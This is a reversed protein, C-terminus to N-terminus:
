ELISEGLVRAIVREAAHGDDRPNFRARWAAYREAYDAAAADARRVLTVLEDATRVVPGPAVAIFDFYFGRLVERYRELDPTFFFIPKGTVSFDFMVSSYDTILADAVLFLESVDPYSTVDLVGGAHLDSGPQLSRSHGRILTVYGPGLKETFASVDLHDVRGPHDDRWTPAYLLVTADDPIGLKARVVAADGTLLVDDRPYGEEWIPGRFLYARRFIRTAYANQSLLISWRSRERLTALAPRLRLGSRNLALKKLMTGHWTQLVRQHRRGRYRNRLWDNIVILRASGRIRWWEASGEILPIAGAPVAVSADRVGWYRPIDPRAAALARDLALPNCSANQGYFSEFFAANLAPYDTSRYEAELRAQQQVGVEADTLPASLTMSIADETEFAIRFLGPVLQEAPVTATATLPPEFRYRGSPPAAPAHGWRSTLMPIDASWRGDSRVVSATLRSRSGVLSLARPGEGAGQLRLVPAEGADLTVSDVAWSAGVPTATMSAPEKLRALIEGYVRATSRGDRFSHCESALRESHAEFTRRVGADDRLRALLGLLEEWSRVATGGSFREYPEYLGRTAAYHEVDPALFAIPRGTLAFDYAISSYDTVLVDIAPLIPTADNQTAASLMRIRPSAAPGADYDGVSHPHPRLVLVANAAELHEAIARWEAASPVGPDREGDRWTPAYLLVQEDGFPGIGRALLTRAEDRRRQETGRLLVDDRPDGTVVVREAPLGFATRLREASYESAAPLMGISAANRRYLSRLVHRLGFRGGFTVPSDLQIRKLPIGHWLQVIFAGRVGFRNADGLGHTVVVVRARLTTWFGRRSSRLVSQLGLARAREREEASRALWTVVLAPDQRKAHLALALAGEGVGSGSAFVWSRRQRPVALGALGGLVYLPASLLKEANGRAFTFRSM